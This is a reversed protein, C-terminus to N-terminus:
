ISSICETECDYILWRELVAFIFNQSLIRYLSDYACTQMWDDSIFTLAQTHSSMVDFWPSHLEIKVFNSLGICFSMGIVLSISFDLGSTSNWYSQRGNESVPLLKKIDATSQSIEDFNPM